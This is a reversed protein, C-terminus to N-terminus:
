AGPDLKPDGNSKSQWRWNARNIHHGMPEQRGKIGGLTTMDDQKQRSEKERKNGKTYLRQGQMKWIQTELKM